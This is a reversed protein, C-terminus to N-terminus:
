IGGTRILIQRCIERMELLSISTDKIEFKNGDTEVRFGRKQAQTEKDDSSLTKKENNAM